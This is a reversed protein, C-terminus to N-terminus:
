FVTFAHLLIKDTNVDSLIYACTHTHSITREKNQPSIMLFDLETPTPSDCIM